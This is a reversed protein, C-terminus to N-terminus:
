VGVGEGRRVGQYLLSLLVRLPHCREMHSTFRLLIIFGHLLPLSGARRVTSVEEGRGRVGRAEAGEEENTSYSQRGESGWPVGREQKREGEGRAM